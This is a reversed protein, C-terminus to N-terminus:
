RATGTAQAGNIIVFTPPPSKFSDRYRQISENAAPGDLGDPPPAKAAAQPDLTQQARAASVAQGFRSDFQPTRSACGAFALTLLLLTTPYRM